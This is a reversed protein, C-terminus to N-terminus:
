YFLYDTYKQQLSISTKELYYVQMSRVQLITWAEKKNAAKM